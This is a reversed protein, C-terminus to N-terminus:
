QINQNELLLVFKPVLQPDFHTGSYKKLEEVAELHSIAGRYPRESTMADYADAIALIRCELPIEEGKLGLPYGKGNWWEHHKLIWDAIPVLDPASQAIRYGIECHRQIETIEEPTLSYPKLLIRDPIGVRGIDHFQALLRLASINRESLGVASAMSAVMSQLRITHEETIYDRSRLAKILTQVIANRASKSRYLKERYMNNDAEKFIDGMSATEKSGSAFGISISLPIDPDSANFNSIALRIRNCAREVVTLDSNPLLIAFEDGGIRAVMDKERFSNKVIAAAKVLMVDGADHGLTDNVLKLGDVDCMIIGVPDYMGEGLHHMEQEFYDRNFLGTLSDHQSSYKLNEEMRKHETIDRISEIAGMLKGDGDYLPSATAWLFTGEGNKLSPVYSGGILTDGKEEIFEYRQKIDQLDMGVLDILIPRPVGYFPLAYAFDGKGVIDNKAIGTMEEIARNWAIVKKDKDIVFTADPLFEIIDFLQQHAARLKDEARKREEIDRAIGEISTLIGSESYIAVNRQEIWIIAGDKRRFRMIIPVVATSKPQMINKLIVRDDPHVIKSVLYPDAYYEEPTYGTIDSASPSVYEFGPSPLIRYRYILDRANEALLRFRAESESLDKRAKEFYILLIGIAVILGLMSALLYGWPAFWDVSRLFPYNGKHIGWVIFGWGTIKKGVGEIDRLRIFALGIWIYVISLFIFVPLNLMIFSFKNMVVFVVWVAILVSIYVWWKSMKRDMFVFIGWLLFLGSSISFMQELAKLTMAQPDRIIWLSFIHRIVYLSWSFAWIKIYREQYKSYLYWYISAMIFTGAITAIVSPVMWAM